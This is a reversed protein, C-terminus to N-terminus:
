ASWWMMAASAGVARACRRAPSLNDVALMLLLIRVTIAADVM